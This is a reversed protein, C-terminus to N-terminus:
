QFMVKEFAFIEKEQNQIDGGPPTDNIVNLITQEVIDKTIRKKTELKNAIRYKNNNDFTKYIECLFDEGFIVCENKFVERARKSWQLRKGEM